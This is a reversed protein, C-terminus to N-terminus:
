GKRRELLIMMMLGLIIQEEDDLDIDSLKSIKFKRGFFSAEKKLRVIAKNNLDLVSYSPNFFYGTFAGLVPIQGILSDIVKVWANDERIHYQFKQHQDILEYETKWLSKWGKRAVKGIEKGKKDKISYVASFDIWKDANIRYEIESKSEDNYILIDEKLKFMKQKVYAITTGLSDKAIFDNSLTTINFKFSVPYKVEKM